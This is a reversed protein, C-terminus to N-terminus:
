PFCCDAHLCTAWNNQNRALRYQKRKSMMVAHKASFCCICYTKYDKIQSSRSKFERDVMSSPFVCVMVGGIEGNSHVKQHIPMKLKASEYTEVHAFQKVAHIYRRGILFYAIYIFLSSFCM